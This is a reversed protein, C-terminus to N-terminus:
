RQDPSFQVTYINKQSTFALRRENPHWSPQYANGDFTLQRRNQGNAEMVYIDWGTNTDSAFAVYRGTPSWAPGWSNGDLTLQTENGDQDVVHINWTNDGDTIISRRTFVIDWRIDSTDDAFSSAPNLEPQYDYKGDDDPTLDYWYTSSSLYYTDLKLWIVGGYSFALFYWDTSFTGLGGGTSVSYRMSPNRGDSVIRKKTRAMPGSRTFIEMPCM